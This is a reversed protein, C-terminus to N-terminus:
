LSGLISKMPQGIHLDREIARLSARDSPANVPRAGFNALHHVNAQDATVSYQIRPPDIYM